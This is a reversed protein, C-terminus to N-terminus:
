WSGAGSPLDAAAVEPIESRVRLVTAEAEAAAAAFDADEAHTWEQFSPIDSRGYEGRGRRAVVARKLADSFVTAAAMRANRDGGFVEAVVDIRSRFENFEM